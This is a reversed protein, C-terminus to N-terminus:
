HFEENEAESRFTSIFKDLFTKCRHKHGRLIAALAQQLLVKRNSVFTGHSDRTLTLGSTYRIQRKGHRDHLVIAIRAVIIYDDDVLVVKQHEHPNKDFREKYEQLHALTFEPEPYVWVYNGDEYEHLLKM